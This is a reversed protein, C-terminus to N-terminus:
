ETSMFDDFVTDLRDKGNTMGTTQSTVVRTQCDRSDLHAPALQLLTIQQLLLEKVVASFSAGTEMRTEIYDLTYRDNIPDFAITKRLRKANEDKNFTVLTGTM